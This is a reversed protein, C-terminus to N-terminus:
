AGDGACRCRQNAVTLEALRAELARAHARAKLLEASPTASRIISGDISRHADRLDQLRRTTSALATTAQNALRTTKLHAADAETFQRTVTQATARFSDREDRAQDREDRLQTIQAHLVLTEHRLRRLTTLGFM